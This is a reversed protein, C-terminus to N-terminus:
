LTPCNDSYIYISSITNILAAKLSQQVDLPKLKRELKSTHGDESSSNLSPCERKPCTVPISYYHWGWPAELQMWALLEFLNGPCGEVGFHAIKHRTRHSVQVCDTLRVVSQGLYEQFSLWM